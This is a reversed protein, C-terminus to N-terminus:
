RLQSDKSGRRNFFSSPKLNKELERQCPLCLKVGPLALRRREDIPEGCEACENLSEGKPLAARARNVESDISDSIQQTVAGDGAWGVVM